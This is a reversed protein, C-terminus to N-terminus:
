RGHGLLAQIPNERSRRLPFPRDGLTEFMGLEGFVILMMYIIIYLIYHIIISYIHNYLM